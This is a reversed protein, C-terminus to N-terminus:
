GNTAGGAKAAIRASLRNLANDAYLSFPPRFPVVIGGKSIPGYAKKLTKIYTGLGYTESRNKDVYIHTREKAREEIPTHKLGCIKEFDELEQEEQDSFTIPKADSWIFECSFKTLEMGFERMKSKAQPYIDVLSQALSPDDFFEKCRWPCSDIFPSKIIVYDFFDGFGENTYIEKYCMVNDYTVLTRPDVKDTACLWCALFNLENIEEECLDAEIAKFFLVKLRNVMDFFSHIMEPCMPFSFITQTSIKLDTIEADKHFTGPLVADYEKLQQILRDKISNIDYRARVPIGKRNGFIANLLIEETTPEPDKYRQNWDWLHKYQHHLKFFPYKDWYRTAAKPDTNLIENKSIGLCISIKELTADDATEYRFLPVDVVTETEDDFDRFFGYTNMSYREFLEAVYQTISDITNM